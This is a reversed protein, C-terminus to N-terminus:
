IRPSNQELSKQAKALRQSKARFMKTLGLAEEQVPLSPSVASFHM